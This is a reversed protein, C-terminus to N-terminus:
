SEPPSFPDLVRVDTPEFHKSNRTVITLNHRLATLKAIASNSLKDRLKM